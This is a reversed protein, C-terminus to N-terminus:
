FIIRGSVQLQRAGSIVNNTSTPTLFTSVNSLTTGSLSYQTTNVGFINTHNLINFAEGVLSLRLRETFRFDRGVRVDFNWYGPGTLANRVNGSDRYTGPGFGSNNVLGGTLGGDVAGTPTGSILGTVPQGTAASFITALTWGDAVQKVMKNSLNKAYGPKWIVNGVFRQRQDLDSLAWENKINKPDAILDTGNFTGGSGAVQGDDQAKSLTYNAVFEVDHAMRKHFTLVLSNYLSNVVSYGTLIAGTPDIRNASTYFPSTFTTGNPYTYTKTQTTPGLNGPM